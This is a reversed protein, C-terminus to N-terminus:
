NKRIPNLLIQLLHGRRNKRATKRTETIIRREEIPKLSPISKADQIKELMAALTQMLTKLDLTEHGEADTPMM